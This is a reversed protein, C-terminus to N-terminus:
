IIRSDLNFVQGSISRLNALFVIFKAVENLDALNNLVNEEKAQTISSHSSKAKREGSMTLDTLHYGPLIANVCINFRGLEKALSKTLGIIGAKAASYNTQGFNGRIGSISSINIISGTRNKIMSKAVYKCCLFVGKLNTDLVRDWKEEDMNVILSDEIIGANNVLIDIKSYKGLIESVMNDVEESFSVDAKVLLTKGGSNVIFDVVKKADNENNKYNVVVIYKEKAFELAIAKGIGRSAGTVVVIKKNM